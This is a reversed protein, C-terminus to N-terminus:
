EGQEMNMHDNQGTEESKQTQSDQVPTLNMGCEPCKGPESKRVDPHMPCTYIATQVVSDQQVTPNSNASDAVVPKLTMGCIPCDGPTSLKVNPHMPCTYKQTIQKAPQQQAEGSDQAFTYEASLIITFGLILSLIIHQKKM